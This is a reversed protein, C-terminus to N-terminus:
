RLIHDFMIQVFFLGVIAGAAESRFAETNGQELFELAFIWIRQDTQWQYLQNFHQTVLTKTHQASGKKLGCIFASSCPHQQLNNLRLYRLCRLPKNIMILCDNTMEVSPLSRGFDM